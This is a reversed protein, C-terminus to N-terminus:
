WRSFKILFVGRLAGSNTLEIAGEIRVSACNAFAISSYLRTVSFIFASDASSTSSYPANPKGHITTSRGEVPPPSPTSVAHKKPDSRNAFM